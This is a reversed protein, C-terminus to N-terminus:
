ISNPLSFSQLTTLTFIPLNNASWLDFSAQHQNLNITWIYHGPTGTAQLAQSTSLLKFWAWPGELTRSFNQGQFDSFSINVQQADNASPWHWSLSQQPGHRYTLNQDALQIYVSSSQSDLIRPQISFQMVPNKDGNQFYMTRILASKELQAVTNASLGLSYGGVQYLRWSGHSIDIFPALYTQIFQPLVGGNGFFNGFSNLNVFADTQSNFPFRDQINNQYTPVVTNQWATNIAQHAGQLLLGLSNNAIDDVWQGLPAPLQYAQSKLLTIPNIPVKNQLIASADQLEIQASNPANNVAVLYDRLATLNKQLNNYSVSPKGPLGTVRNLDAFQQSVNLTKSRLPLTNEAIVYLTNQLPSYKRLLVNLTQIAQNLNNFKTIQINSLYNNWYAIYDTNYRTWLEPTMQSTLVDTNNKDNLGIIWYITATDKILSKSKEGRLNKYGQLTYIDPIGKINNDRYTFINNFAPGLKDELSFLQQERKMEYYVFDVPPVQRLRERTQEILQENLPISDVPYQLAQDLYDKIQEQIDPQNPLANGITAAVPPKLWNPDTNTAPSFVLYAKLTQYLLEPNNPNQALLNALYLALRPMFETALTQRWVEEIAGSIKLPQYFEFNLLWKQDSNAYIDNIGKLTNLLPLPETLNKNAPSLQSVAQQYDPLYRQILEINEKNRAYSVSLGVSGFALASIATLWTLQYSVAKLRQLHPSQGVRGAEPLIIDHFLRKVFFSREQPAQQHVPPASLRYKAALTSLLFDYSRGGQLNSVFYIGRLYENGNQAVFDVLVQKCLHMQQPFYSILERKRTDRESELRRLLRTNLIQILKDFETSFYDILQQKSAFPQLPLTVGWVQDREEKSLDDFFELFGAILDCKSLVVYVPTQIKLQQHLTQLVSNLTHQQLQTVQESQLLLEPLNFTVIIGNLPKYRRYRKILKLIGAWFPDHAKVGLQSRQENTLPPIESQNVAIDLIVAEKSFRWHYGQQEGGMQLPDPGLTETPSFDLGANALFSTKGSSATGFIIYWPLKRLYRSRKDGWLYFAKKLSVFVQHTHHQFIAKQKKFSEKLNELREDNAQAAQKQLHRIYLIGGTILLVILTLLCATIIGAASLSGDDDAMAAPVTLWIAVIILALLIVIAAIKLYYSFPKKM